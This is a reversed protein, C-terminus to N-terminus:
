YQPLRGSGLLSGMYTVKGDCGGVNGVGWGCQYGTVGVM